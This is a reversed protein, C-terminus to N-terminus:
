YDTKKYEIKIKNSVLVRELRRREKSLCSLQDKLEEQRATEKRLDIKSQWITGFVLSLLVGLGLVVPNVRRLM